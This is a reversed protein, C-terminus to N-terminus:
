FGEMLVCFMGDGLVSPRYASFFYFRKEVMKECIWSFQIVLGCIKGAM